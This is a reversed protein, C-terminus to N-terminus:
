ETHADAAEVVGWLPLMERQFFAHRPYAANLPGSGTGIANPEVTFRLTKDKGGSSGLGDRFQVDLTAKAVDFGPLEGRPRRLTHAIVDWVDADGGKPVSFDIESGPYAEVSLVAGTARASVVNPHDIALDASSLGALARPSFGPRPHLEIAAGGLVHAAFADAIEHIVRQGGREAIVCVRAQPPDVFVQAVNTRISQREGFVGDESVEEIVTPTRSIRATFLTGTGLNQGGEVRSLQVHKGSFDHARYIGQLATQFASIGGPHIMVDPPVRFLRSKKRSNQRLFFDARNEADEFRNSSFLFLALARSHDNADQLGDADHPSLQNLGMALAWQRDPTAMADIRGAEYRLRAWTAPAESVITLAYAEAAAARQNPGLESERTWSPAGAQALWRDVLVPRANKLLRKFEDM